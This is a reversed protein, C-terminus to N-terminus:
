VRVKKVKEKNEEIFTSEEVIMSMDDVNLYLQLQLCFNMSM